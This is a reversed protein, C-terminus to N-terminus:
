AGSRLWEGLRLRVQRLRDSSVAGLVGQVLEAEVVALRGVRVVSAVKLGSQVFDAAAPTIVDDFGSVAQHLQSTVRCVLWDGHRGPVQAILLVPRLKGPTLDAQPLRLLGLQGAEGIM